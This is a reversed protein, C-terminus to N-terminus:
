IWIKKLGHTIWAEHKSVWIDIIIKKKWGTWLSTYERFPLVLCLCCVPKLSLTLYIELQIWVFSFFFMCLLNVPKKLTKWCKIFSGNRIFWLSGKVIYVSTSVYGQYGARPQLAVLWRPWLFCVVCLPEGTPPLILSLGRRHWAFKTRANVHQLSWLFVRIGTM